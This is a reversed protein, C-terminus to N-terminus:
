ASVKIRLPAGPKTLYRWRARTVFEGPLFNFIFETLLTGRRALLEFRSSVNLEVCTRGSEILVRAGSKRETDAVLICASGAGQDLVSANHAKFEANAQNLARRILAENSLKQWSLRSPVAATQSM